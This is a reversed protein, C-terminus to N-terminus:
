KWGDIMAKVEAMKASMDSIVADWAALMGNAYEPSHKYEESTKYAEIMKKIVAQGNTNFALHANAMEKYWSAADPAVIKLSYATRMEERAEDINGSIENYLRRITNM